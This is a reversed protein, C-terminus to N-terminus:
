MQLGHVVAGDGEREWARRLRRFQRAGLGVLEGGRCAPILGQGVQHLGALRDRERQRLALM